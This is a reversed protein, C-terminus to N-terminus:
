GLNGVSSMDHSLQPSQPRDLEDPWASVTLLDDFLDLQMQVERGTPDWGLFTEELIEFDAGESMALTLRGDGWLLSWLQQGETLTGLPGSLTSRVYLGVANEASAMFQTRISVDRYVRGEVDTDMFPPGAPDATLVFSGDIVERTGADAYSPAGWSVPIGDTADGDEFDDFFMQARASGSALLLSLIAFTTICRTM